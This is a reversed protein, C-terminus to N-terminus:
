HALAVKSITIQPGHNLLEPVSTQTFLRSPPWSMMMVMLLRLYLPSTECNDWRFIMNRGGLPRPTTTPPPLPTPQCYFTQLSRLLCKQGVLQKLFMQYSRQCDGYCIRNMFEGNNKEVMSGERRPFKFWHIIAFASAEKARYQSSQITKKPMLIAPHFLWYSSIKIRRPSYSRYVLFM